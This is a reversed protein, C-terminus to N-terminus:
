DPQQNSFDPGKSTVSNCRGPWGTRLRTGASVSSDWSKTNIINYNICYILTKYMM